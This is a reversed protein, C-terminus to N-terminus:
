RGTPSARDIVERAAVFQPARRERFAAMGEKGEVSALTALMGDVAMRDLDDISMHEAALVLEKITATALRGHGAARAAVQLAEKRASGSPVVRALGLRGCEEATLRPALLLLELARARGVFRGLRQVSGGPISGLTVEPLRAWASESMVRLDCALALEFGGGVAPGELVAITLLPLRELQRFLAVVAGLFQALESPRDAVEQLHKLDTGASFVPGQHDLLVAAVKPDRAARDLERSLARVLRPSLANRRGEDGLTLVRATAGKVAVETTALPSPASM